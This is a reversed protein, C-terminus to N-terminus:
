LIYLTIVSNTIVCEEELQFRVNRLKPHERAVGVAEQM